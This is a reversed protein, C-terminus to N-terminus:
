LCIRSILKNCLFLHPYYCTFTSGVEGALKMRGSLVLPFWLDTVSGAYDINALNINLEGMPVGSTSFGARHSMVLRLSPLESDRDLGADVGSFIFVENWKPNLTKRQPKTNFAETKNIKRNRSDVLCLSIQPDSDGIKTIALLDRAEIIEVRLFLSSLNNAKDRFFNM